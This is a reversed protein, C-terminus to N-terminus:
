QNMVGLNILAMVRREVTRLDGSLATGAAHDFLAPRVFRELVANSGRGVRSRMSIGTVAVDYARLRFPAVRSANAASGDVISANVDYEACASTTGPSNNCVCRGATCGTGTVPNPGANDLVPALQLDEVGEQVLQPVGFAAGGLAVQQFLGPRADPQSAPPQCILFRVRRTARMLNYSTSPAACGPFASLTAATLAQNVLQVPISSGVVGGTGGRGLCSATGTTWLLLEGAGQGAGDFPNLTAAILLATPTSPAVPSPSASGPVVLESGLRFEITDSGPAIGWDALGCNATTSIQNGAATLEPETGDVNNLWRTAFVPSSFRYGASRAEFDILALASMANSKVELRRENERRSQSVMMVVQVAALMVVSSIAVTIMLEILTLGRRSREFALM